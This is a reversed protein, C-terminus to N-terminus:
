ACAHFIHVAEGERRDGTFARPHGAPDLAVGVSPLDDGVLRTGGCRWCPKSRPDRGLNGQAVNSACRPCRLAPLVEMLELVVDEGALEVVVVEVACIPCQGRFPELFLEQGADIVAM